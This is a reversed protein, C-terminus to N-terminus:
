GQSPWAFPPMWVYTQGGAVWYLSDTGSHVATGPNIVHWALQGTSDPWGASPARGSTSTELFWGMVHLHEGAGLAFTTQHKGNFATLKVTAPGQLSTSSQGPVSVWTPGWGPPDVVQPTSNDPPAAVRSPTFTRTAWNYTGSSKVAGGSDITEVFVQNGWGGTDLAGILKWGPENPPHWNRRGPSGM